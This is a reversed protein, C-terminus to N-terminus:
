LFKIGDSSKQISYIGDRSVLNNRVVSLMKLRISCGSGNNCGGGVAVVVV